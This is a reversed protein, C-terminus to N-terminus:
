TRVYEEFRPVYTRVYRRIRRIRGKGAVYTRVYKSTSGRANYRDHGGVGQGLLRLESFGRDTLMRRLQLAGYGNALLAEPDATRSGAAEGPVFTAGAMTYTLVYARARHGAFM